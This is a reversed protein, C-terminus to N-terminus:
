YLYLTQLVQEWLVSYLMLKRRQGCLLFIGLGLKDNPRSSLNIQFVPTSKFELLNVNSKMATEFVVAIDSSFRNDCLILSQLQTNNAMLRALAAGGEDGIFNRNLELSMLTSNDIFMEVLACAGISTIDNFSLNLNHLHALKLATLTVVLDDTIHCETLYLATLSHFVSLQSVSHLGCPALVKLMNADAIKEYFQEGSASAYRIAGFKEFAYRLFNMDPTGCCTGLFELEAYHDYIYTHMHDWFEDLTLSLIENNHVNSWISM